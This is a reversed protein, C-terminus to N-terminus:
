VNPFGKKILIVSTLVITEQTNKEKLPRPKILLCYAIGKLLSVSVPTLQIFSNCKYTVFQANRNACEFLFEIFVEFVLEIIM